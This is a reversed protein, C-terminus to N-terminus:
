RARANACNTRSSSCSRRTRTVSEDHPYRADRDTRCSMTTAPRCDPSMRTSMLEGPETRAQVLPGPAEVRECAHGALRVKARELVHGLLLKRKAHV